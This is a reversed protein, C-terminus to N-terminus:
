PNAPWGSHVNIAKVQAVTTAGAIQSRLSRYNNTIQALFNGVNTGTIQITGDRIFTPLSFNDDLTADLAIQQKNKWYQLEDAGGSYTGAFTQFAAADDVRWGDPAQAVVHGQTEFSHAFGEPQSHPVTTYPVTQM